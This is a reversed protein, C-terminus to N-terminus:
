RRGRNDGALDHHRQGVKHSCAGDPLKQRQSVARHNGYPKRIKSGGHGRPFRKRIDSRITKRRDDVVPLGSIHNVAMFEAVKELSFEPKATIVNTTMVERVKVVRTLRSLAHDYAKLYLEKFDSPTIDLYGSIESMATFIDDDSIQVPACAKFSTDAMKQEKMQTKITIKTHKLRLLRQSLDFLSLFNHHCRIHNCGEDIAKRVADLAHQMQYPKSVFGRATAEIIKREDEDVAFGSAIIIRVKPDIRTIEEMCQLGGIEPMILDLIMLSIKGKDREFIEIAERGNSATIVNYGVSTLFRVALDRVFEEDDVLLITENGGKPTIDPSHDVNKVSNESM